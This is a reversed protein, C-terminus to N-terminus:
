ENVPQIGEEKLWELVRERIRNDKFSFWRDQDAASYALVDKFRRFPHRGEIAQWLRAQLRQDRVTSIFDEMDRYADSSESRPVSIYREGFGKEVQDAKRLADKEWEPLSLRELITTINVEEDAADGPVDEEYIHEVQHSIEDTVMVVEGTERDLYYSHEWSSDDFAIELESLDVELRRTIQEKNM